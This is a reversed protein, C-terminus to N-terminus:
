PDVTLMADACVRDAILLGADSLTWRGERINLSGQTSAANAWALLADDLGPEITAAARLIEPTALGERLRLGTMLRESLARRPDPIEVDTVPAFGEDDFDLYDGLRPVNKWRVGAFHGSASPGAALWPEQRWYALNHRCEASPKAFSSVEYPHLGRAELFRRTEIFMDTETDEDCPDFDGREMRVTMATSPEYTLAYCSLHETGLRVATDLDSLWDDLTQGPIAFILDISVRDIGARHAHEIARPVNDPDHWRELTKLHTKSFSQAGISLRNVGGAALVAFLEETVTEPNCEVTFETRDTIGYANNLAELLRAWLDPRLLTPTGGGVFITDLTEDAYPALSGLERVIRNTFAPQQDRTDVFSYFDCYHCKHFCFPVHLYM